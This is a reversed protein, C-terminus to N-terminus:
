RYRVWTSVAWIVTGAFFLSMVGSGAILGVPLEKFESTDKRVIRTNSVSAQLEIEPLVGNVIMRYTMAQGKHLPSTTHLTLKRRTHDETAGFSRLEAPLSRPDLTAVITASCTLEIPLGNFHAVDLDKNGVNRLVVEVLHPENLEAGSHTVAVGGHDMERTKLSTVTVSWRLTRRPWVARYALWGVLIATPVALVAAVAAVITWPDTGAEEAAVTFM